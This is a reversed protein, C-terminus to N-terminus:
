FLYPPPKYSSLDARVFTLSMEHFAFWESLQIGKAVSMSSMSSEGPPRLPRCMWRCKRIRDISPRRRPNVNLMAHLLAKCDTLSFTLVLDFNGSFRTSTRLLSFTCTCIFTFVSHNSSKIFDMGKAVHKHFKLENEMSYRLIDVDDDRFPLRGCLM